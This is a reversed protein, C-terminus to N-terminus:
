QGFWRLWNQVALAIAWAFGVFGLTKRNAGRAALIAVLPLTALNIRGLFEAAYRVYEDGVRAFVTSASFVLWVLAWAALASTLRDRVGARALDIAGFIALILLPWGASDIAQSILDRIRAGTGMYGEATGPAAASVGEGGFMRSFAASFEGTFHQYYAFWALAAAVIVAIVIAMASRRRALDGRWFYLVVLAGLTAVLTTATSVHSGLAWALILSFAALSAVQRPALSWSVAAAMVVLAMSQGFINALNANGLVGYAVPPLQYALVALLATRRQGWARLVIPYLLLGAAVDTAATVGRILAIHDSTIWTWLGAFLYLGIAYPMEVGGIFKQTFHYQGALVADLRHAHFMADVIPKSPHLLAILKLLVAVGSIVCAARAASSLPERSIRDLATMVAATVVGTWMAVRLITHPYEGYAGGAITLMTAAGLGVALAVLMSGWLSLGAIALVGAVFAASGAASALARQPPLALGEPRCGLRDIQVGLTRKDSTGPVFTPSVMLTIEAGSRGAAPVRFALEQYDPASDGRTVRAGDIAVDVTPQPYELGRGSRYRVACFWAGSRNLGELDIEVRDTTWAFTHAEDREMGHIGTVFSPLPRDMEFDIAPRLAYLLFAAALGLLGALAAAILPRVFASM